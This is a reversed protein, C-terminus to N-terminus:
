MMRANCCFSFVHRRIASCLGCRCREHRRKIEGRRQNGCFGDEIAEVSRSTNSTRYRDVPPTSQRSFSLHSVCASRPAHCPTLTLRLPRTTSSSKDFLLRWPIRPWRRLSDVKGVPNYGGTSREYYQLVHIDWTRLSLNAKTCRLVSACLAAATTFTLDWGCYKTNLKTGFVSWRYM